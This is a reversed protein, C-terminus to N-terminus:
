TGSTIRTSYKAVLARVARALSSFLVLLVQGGECSFRSPVLAALQLTQVADRLACCSPLSERCDAVESVVRCLLHGSSQSAQPTQGM